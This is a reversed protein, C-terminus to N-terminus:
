VAYHTPDCAHRNSASGDEIASLYNGVMPMVCANLVTAVSREYERMEGLVESSLSVCLEPAVRQIVTKIRQEHSPNSYSHLLCVAIAKVGAEKLQGCLANLMPM